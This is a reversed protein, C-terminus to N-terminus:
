AGIEAVAAHFDSFEEAQNEWREISASLVEILLRNTDYDQMLQDM